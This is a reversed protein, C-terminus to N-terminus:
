KSGFTDQLYTRLQDDNMSRLTENTAAGLLIFMFIWYMSFDLPNEVFSFLWRYSIYVGFIKFFISRSNDVALNASKYFITFMLLAYIIGGFTLVAVFASESGGLRGYEYGELSEALGTEYLATASSGFLWHNNSSLNRLADEYITTRSDVTSVNVSGGSYEFADGKEEAAKFINFIGLAGLLLLFIPLFFLINKAFSALRIRGEYRSGYLFCTLYYAMLFAYSMLIGLMNSRNSTDINFCVISAIVVLVRERSPLLPILIIFFYIFSVYYIHIVNEGKGTEGRLFFILSVFITCRLLVKLIGSFHVPAYGFYSILPLMLTPAFSTALFRWQEYSDAVFISRTAVFIGYLFFALLDARLQSLYTRIIEVNKVIVYLIILALLFQIAVRITPGPFLVSQIGSLTALYIIVQGSNTTRDHVYTVGAM